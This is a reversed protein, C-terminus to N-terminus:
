KNRSIFEIFKYLMIGTGFYLSLYILNELIGTWDNLMTAQIGFVVNKVVPILTLIEYSIEKTAISPIFSLFAGILAVIQYTASESLKQSKMKMLQYFIGIFITINGTSLYIFCIFVIMNIMGSQIRFFILTSLGFVFWLSIKGDIMISCQNIMMNLWNPIPYTYIKIDVMTNMGHRICIAMIELMSLVAIGLIIELYGNIINTETIIKKIADIIAIMTIIYGIGCLCIISWYAWKRKEIRGLLKWNYYCIVVLINIYKRYKLVDYQSDKKQIQTYHFVNM